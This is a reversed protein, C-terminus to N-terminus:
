LTVWWDILYAVADFPTAHNTWNYDCDIAVVRGNVERVRGIEARDVSVILSRKGEGVQTTIPTGFPLRRAARVLRAHAFGGSVVGGRHVDPDPAFPEGRM